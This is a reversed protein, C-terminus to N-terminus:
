PRSESRRLFSCFLPLFFSPNVYWIHDIMEGTMPNKEGFMARMTANAVLERLWLFIDPVDLTTGPKIGNLSVAMDNLATKNMEHLPEGALSSHILHNIDEL